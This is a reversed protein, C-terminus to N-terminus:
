PNNINNGNCLAGGPSVLLATVARRTNFDGPTPSLGWPRALLTGGAAPAARRHPRRSKGGSGQGSGRTEGGRASVSTRSAASPLAPPFLMAMLSFFFFFFFNIQRLSRSPFGKEPSKGAAPIIKGRLSAGPAPWRRAGLRQLQQEDGCEGGEAVSFTGKM